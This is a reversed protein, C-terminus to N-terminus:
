PPFQRRDDLLDFMVVMDEPGVPLVAEELLVFLEGPEQAVLSKPSFFTARDDRHRVSFRWVM